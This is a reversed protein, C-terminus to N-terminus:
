MVLITRYMLNSNVFEEVNKAARFGALTDGTAQNYVVSGTLLQNIKNESRSWRRKFCNFCIRSVLKMQKSNRENKKMYDVIEADSVSVDIKSVQTCVLLM